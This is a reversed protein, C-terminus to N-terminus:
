FNSLSSTTLAHFDLPNDFSLMLNKAVDSILRLGSSCWKLFELNLFFSLPIQKFVSPIPKLELFILRYKIM